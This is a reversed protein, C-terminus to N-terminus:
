DVLTFSAEVVTNFRDASQATLRSLINFLNYLLTHPINWNIILSYM